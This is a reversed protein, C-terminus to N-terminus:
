VISLLVDFGAAKLERAVASADNGAEKLKRVNAYGDNGIALSVVM